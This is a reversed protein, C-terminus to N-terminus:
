PQIEMSGLSVGTVGWPTCAVSEEDTALAGPLSRGIVMRRTVQLTQMLALLLCTPSHIKQMRPLTTASSAMTSLVANALGIMNQFPSHGGRRLRDM